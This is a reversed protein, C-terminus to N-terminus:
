LPFIRPIEGWTETVLTLEVAKPLPVPKKTMSLTPWIEQWQDNSDLFRLKVELVETLMSVQRPEINPARDLHFWYRRILENDELRYSVRQLSSRTQKAPNKWGRRTFSLLTELDEPTHLAPDQEGFENTVPRFTVQSLDQQMISMALQLAQLEQSAERTHHSTNMISNLGGYALASLVAFIGVAIIVELLTFGSQNRTQKIM